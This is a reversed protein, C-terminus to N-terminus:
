NPVVPFVFTAITDKKIHIMNMSITQEVNLQAKFRAVAQERQGARRLRRGLLRMSWAGFWLGHVLVVSGAHPPSM